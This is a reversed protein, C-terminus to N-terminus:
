PPGHASLQAPEDISTNSVSGGADKSRMREQCARLIGSEFNRCDEASMNLQSQKIAPKVSASSASSQPLTTFIHSKTISELQLSSPFCVEM